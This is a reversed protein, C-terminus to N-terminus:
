LGGYILWCHISEICKLFMGELVLICKLGKSHTLLIFGDKAPWLNSSNDVGKMIVQDQSHIDAVLPGIFQVISEKRQSWSM